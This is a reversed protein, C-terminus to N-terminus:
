ASARKRRKHASAAPKLPILKIALRTGTAEAYRLLTRLSPIRTGSEIRAIASQSTGMREALQAQTLGAHARAAVYEAVREFLPRLAEYEARAKPDALLRKKYRQLWTTKM